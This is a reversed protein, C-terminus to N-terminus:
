PAYNPPAVIVWGPDVPIPEGEISVEATVPGDSVDDHWEDNNAFTPRPGTRPPSVGRGGLFM